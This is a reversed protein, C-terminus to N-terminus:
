KTATAKWNIKERRFEANSSGVLRSLAIGLAASKLVFQLDVEPRGAVDVSIRASGNKQSPLTGQRGCRSTAREARGM